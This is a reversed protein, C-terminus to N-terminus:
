KPGTARSAKHYHRMAKARNGCSEMSCWRRSRNRSTDLFLYGCGRDDECQGVRRYQGSQILEIASRTVPWLVRGLDDPQYAWAWELEQEGEVLRLSQVAEQWFRTMTDLDASDVPEGAEKDEGQSGQSLVVFIRYITERLNIAEQLWRSAEEPQKEAQRLLAYAEDTSLL